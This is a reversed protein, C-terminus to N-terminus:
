MEILEGGVVGTDCELLMVAKAGSAMAEELSRARVTRMMRMLMATLAAATATCSWDSCHPTLDFPAQWSLACASFNFSMAMAEMKTKLKIPTQRGSNERETGARWGSLSKNEMTLAKAEPTMSAVPYMCTSGSENSHKVDTHKGSFGHFFNGNVVNTAMSEATSVRM